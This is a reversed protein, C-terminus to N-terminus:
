KIMRRTRYCGVHYMGAPYLPTGSAVTCKGKGSGTFNVHTTVASKFQTDDTGTLLLVDFDYLGNAGVHSDLISLDWFTGLDDVPGALPPTM